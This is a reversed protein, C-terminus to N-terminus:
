LPATQSTHHWCHALPNAATRARQAAEDARRQETRRDRARAEDGRRDILKKVSAARLQLERLADRQQQARAEAHQQQQRQQVIAQDLRQMFGQHFRLLEITASRGGLAPHRARYEERYAELQATQAAMRSALDEAQLVAALAEDRQHEAHQLLTRLAAPM